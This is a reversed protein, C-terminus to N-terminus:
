DGIKDIVKVIFHKRLKEIHNNLENCRKILNERDLTLGLIVDVELKGYYYCIGKINVLKNGHNEIEISPKEKFYYDNGNILVANTKFQTIEKEDLKISEIKLIAEEDLQIKINEENSVNFQLDYSLNDVVIQKQEISPQICRFIKIRNKETKIPLKICKLDKYVNELKYDSVYEQFHIEMNLYFNKLEESIGYKKYLKDLSDKPLNSLSHSHFITRFLIFSKPIKCDFSWEYDIVHYGDNVLVNDLILDINSIEYCKESELISYNQDTFIELFLNSIKFPSSKGISIIKDIIDLKREIEQIDNAEVDKKILEELSNGDIYDFVLSNNNIFVPSYFIDKHKNTENFKKYTGYIQKIHDNGIGYVPVKTVFKKDNNKIISTYIQYEKKRERAFKTYEINCLGNIIIMYSNAFEEFSDMEIIRHMAEIEDFYENRYGEFLSLNRKIDAVSPASSFVYESFEYNPYPYYFQYTFNMGDLLKCWQKKTYLNNRKLINDFDNKIINDKAGSFYQIGLKNNTLIIIQGNVNLISKCKNLIEEKNSLMDLLGEIVIYDANEHFYSIFEQINYKYIHANPNRMQNITNLDVDSNICFVEGKTCLYETIIGADSGLHLIKSNDKFPYWMVVNKRLTSLLHFQNYNEFKVEKKSM